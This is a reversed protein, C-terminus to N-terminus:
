LYRIKRRSSGNGDYSPYIKIMGVPAQLSSGSANGSIGTSVIKWFGPLLRNFNLNLRAKFPLKQKKITFVDGETSLNALCSKPKLLIDNKSETALEIKFVKEDSTGYLKGIEEGPHLRADTTEVVRISYSPFETKANPNDNMIMVKVKDDPYLWIGEVKDLPSENCIDIAMDIDYAIEPMEGFAKNSVTVIMLLLLVRSIAKPKSM